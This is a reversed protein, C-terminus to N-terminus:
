FEINLNQQLNQNNNKAFILGLKYSSDQINRIIDERGLTSLVKIKKSTFGHKLIIGNQEFDIGCISKNFLLNLAKLTQNSMKNAREQLGLTMSKDNALATYIENSSKFTDRTKRHYVIPLVFFVMNMTPFPFSKKSRAVKYYGLVFSQLALASLADNQLIDYIKFENNFTSKNM